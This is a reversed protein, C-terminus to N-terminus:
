PEVKEKKRNFQRKSSNNNKFRTKPKSSSSFDRFRNKSREGGDRQESHGPQGLYDRKIFRVNSKSHDRKSSYDRSGSESSGRRFSREGSGESRKRFEQNRGKDGRSQNRGYGEQTQRRRPPRSERTEGQIPELGPIVKRELRKGTFREIQTLLSWDKPAVFSIATGKEGARGTRGIRHIYDEGTKPLDFNIVHSLNKVDLGRAAVDTAVLVRIYGRKMRDITQTRKSQKMDGHLEACAVKKASLEAALEKAGRKTSIFVIAQWLEGEGLIKDLLALKHRYNDAQFVVQSILLNEKKASTLQVKEPEKLFRHAIQQVPGELTASFLLIQRDKPLPNFIKEIDKMFGMDLMRDAEDLIFLEVRSFDVRGQNMHDILRGPTAVLFDLPRRLLNEQGHYPVGGTITGVKLSSFKAMKRAVESVQDALERTPTLVLVRPGIGEKSSPQMLCQLAPLVFALTKGAGTEASAMLDRGQLILPIVASQIETPQSFNQSLVSNMLKEHLNFSAFSLIM